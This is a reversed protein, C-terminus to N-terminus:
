AVLDLSDLEVDAIKDSFHLGGDSLSVGEDCRQPLRDDSSKRDCNSIPLLASSRHLGSMQQVGQASQENLLTKRAQGCSSRQTLLSLPKPISAHPLAVPQPSCPYQSEHPLNAEAM